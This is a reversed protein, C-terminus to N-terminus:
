LVFKEVEANSNQLLKIHDALSYTDAEQSNPLDAETVLTRCPLGPGRHTVIYKKSKISFFSVNDHVSIAGGSKKYAGSAADEYMGTESNLTVHTSSVVNMGNGVLQVELFNNFKAIEKSINSHVDFGKYLTACNDAIIQFVRSVTDVVITEPYAKTAAQFKNIKDAIGDVHNGSADTYGKILGEIDPFGTFNSHPVSFPFTKGDISVVFTKKPDLTRLANTKGSNSLGTLLLKIGKKSMNSDKINPTTGDYNHLRNVRSQLCITV